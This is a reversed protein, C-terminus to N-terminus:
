AKGKKKHTKWEKAKQTNEKCKASSENLAKNLFKKM